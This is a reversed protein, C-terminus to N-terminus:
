RRHKKDGQRELLLTLQSKSRGLPVSPTNSPATPTLTTTSESRRPRMAAMDDQISSAFRATADNDDFEIITGQAAVNSTTAVSSSTLGQFPGAKRPKIERIPTRFADGSSKSRVMPSAIAGPQVHSQTSSGAHQPTTHQSKQTTEVSAETGKGEPRTKAAKKDLNNPRVPGPRELAASTTVNLAEAKGPAAASVVVRKGSAKDSLRPDDEKPDPGEVIPSVSRQPGQHRTSPSPREDRSGVESGTASSQSSQRRPMAPRRKNSSAVIKKKSINGIPKRPKEKTASSTKPKPQSSENATTSTSSDVESEEKEDEVDSGAPSVFRATPRPGSSSPGRPKKLIPHAPPPKTSSSALAKPPETKPAEENAAGPSDSAKGKGKDSQVHKLIAQYGHDSIGLYAGATSCVPISPGEYRNPPGRLPVFTPGDSIQEFIRALTPGSLQSRDSGLVHWWFNELRNATPDKLKGFTTTYVHWYHWIKERPIVPYSAIENYIRSDNYVIGKPLLMQMTPADM